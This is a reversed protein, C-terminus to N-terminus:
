VVELIESSPCNLFYILEEKLDSEELHDLIYNVETVKKENLFRECLLIKLWYNLFYPLDYSNIEKIHFDASEMTNRKHWTSLIDIATSFKERFGEYEMEIPINSKENKQRTKNRELILEAKKFNPETIHLSTAYFHFNGVDVNLWYAMLEQLTTYTYVDSYAYDLLESARFTLLLDLKGERILFQCFMSCPMHASFDMLSIVAQRSEQDNSLIDICRDVQNGYIKYLRPGVADPFHGDVEWLYLVSKYKTLVFSDTRGSLVFITEVLDFFMSSLSQFECRKKPEQLVIHVYTKEKCILSNNFKSELGTNMVEDLLTSFMEKCSEFKYFNM